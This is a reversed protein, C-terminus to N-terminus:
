ATGMRRAAGKTIASSNQGSDGLVGLAALLPLASTAAAIHKLSHGSLWQGTWAYIQHDHMELLKALAYAAIVWGWRVALTPGSARMFALALLLAGGGFQVVAWPLVNGSVFAHHATFPGALLVAIGLMLGARASVRVGAAGLLGAFAFTMGCRDVVLGADDPHLHYFSSGATTVVLGAFFLVLLGRELNPMVVAPLRWLLVLGVLGALAFPLNSLVDMAHPISAIARQDAFAHYHPPMPVAPGFMALALLAICAALLATENSSLFRPM